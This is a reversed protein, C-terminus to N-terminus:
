GPPRAAQAIAQAIDSGLTLTGPVVGRIGLEYLAQAIVQEPTREAFPRLRERNTDAASRAEISPRTSRCSGVLLPLAM